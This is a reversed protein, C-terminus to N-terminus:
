IPRRQRFLRLLFFSKLMGDAEPLREQTLFASFFAPNYGHTRRLSEEGPLFPPSSVLIEAM